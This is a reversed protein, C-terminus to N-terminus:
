FSRFRHQELFRFHERAIRDSSPIDVIYDVNCVAFLSPITGQQQECVCPIDGVRGRSPPLRYREASGIEAHLNAKRSLLSDPISDFYPLALIFILHLSVCFSYSYGIGRRVISRLM